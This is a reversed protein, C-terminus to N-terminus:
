SLTIGNSSRHFILPVVVTSVAAFTLYGSIGIWMPIKDRLFNEDEKRFKQQKKDGVADLDNPKNKVRANISIITVYIIKVFTYLGDGLILAVSLFVKYGYISKMNHEDLNNPFWSGKLKDLLPWM